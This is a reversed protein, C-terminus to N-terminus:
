SGFISSGVAVVVVIVVGIKVGIKVRPIVVISPILLFLDVGITM